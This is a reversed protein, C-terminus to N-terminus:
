DADDDLRRRAAEVARDFSAEDVPYRDGLDRRVTQRSRKLRMKVASEGIGLMEATEATSFGEVDRLLLVIRHDPPLRALAAELAHRLEAREADAEPQRSWDVIESPPAGTAGRSQLEDLSLSREPPDRRRNMLCRNAAVRFLWTRVAEPDRLRELGRFATLLTDQLVDEADQRHGCMRLGFAMVRRGYRAVFADFAGPHGDHVAALLERDNM